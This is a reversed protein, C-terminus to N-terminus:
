AKEPKTTFGEYVPNHAGDLLIQDLLGGNV